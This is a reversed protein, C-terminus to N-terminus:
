KKKEDSYFRAMYEQSKAKLYTLDKQMEKGNLIDHLKVKKFGNNNYTSFDIGHEKDQSVVFKWEIKISKLDVEQGGNAKDEMRILAAQIPDTVVSSLLRNKESVPKMIEPILKQIIRNEHTAALASFVEKVFLYYPHQFTLDKTEKMMNNMIGLGYQICERSRTLDGNLKTNTFKVWQSCAKINKNFVSDLQSVTLMIGNDIQRAYNLYAIYLDKLMHTDYLHKNYCAKILKNMSEKNVLVTKAHSDIYYRNTSDCAACRLAERMDEKAANCEVFDKSYNQFYMIAQIKAQSINQRLANCKELEPGKQCTSIFPATPIARFKDGVLRNMFYININFKNYYFSESRGFGLKNNYRFASFSSTSCCSWRYTKCTKSHESRYRNFPVPVAGFKKAFMCSTKAALFQSNMITKPMEMDSDFDELSKNFKIDTKIEYKIDFVSNARFFRFVSYKDHSQKVLDNVHSEAQLVEEKNPNTKGVATRFARLANGFSTSNTQFFKTMKTYLADTFPKLMYDYKTMPALAFYKMVNPITCNKSNKICLRLDFDIRRATVFTEREPLEPLKDKSQFYNWVRTMRRILHHFKRIGWIYSRCKISFQQMDELSPSYTMKTKGSEKDMIPEYNFRLRELPDCVACLAGKVTKALHGLCRIAYHKYKKQFSAQNFSSQYTKYIARGLNQDIKKQKMQQKVNPWYPKIYSAFTYLHSLTMTSMQQIYERPHFDQSHIELNWANEIRHFDSSSCCTQHAIGKCIGHNVRNLPAIEHEMGSGVWDLVDYNCVNTDKGPTLSAPNKADTPTPIPTASKGTDAKPTTKKEAPKSVTAKKEQARVVSAILLLTIVLSFYISRM